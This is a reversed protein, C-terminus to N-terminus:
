CTMQIQWWWLPTWSTWSYLNDYNKWDLARTKIDISYSSGLLLIYSPARRKDLNPQHLPSSVCYVTSKIINNVWLPHMQTTTRTRSEYFLESPKFLWLRNKHMACLHAVCQKRYGIFQNSIFLIIQHPFKTPWEM